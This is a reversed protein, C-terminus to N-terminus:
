NQYLTFFGIQQIKLRIEEEKIDLDVVLPSFDESTEM